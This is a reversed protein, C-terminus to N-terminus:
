TTHLGDNKKKARIHARALKRVKSGMAANHRAVDRRAMEDRQDFTTRPEGTLLEVFSRPVPERAGAAAALPAQFRAATERRDVEAQQNWIERMTDVKRVDYAAFCGMLWQLNTNNYHNVACTGRAMESLCLKWDELTLHGYYDVLQKCAKAVMETSKIGNPAGIMSLCEGLLTVLIM